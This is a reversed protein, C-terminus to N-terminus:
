RQDSLPHPEPQPVAECGLYTGVFAADSRAAVEAPSSPACSCAFAPTAGAVVLGAVILMLVALKM